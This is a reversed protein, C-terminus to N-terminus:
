RPAAPEVPAPAEAVIFMSNRPITHAPCAYVYDKRRTQCAVLAANLGLVWQSYAAPGLPELSLIGRCLWVLGKPRGRSKFSVGLLLRVIAQCLKM